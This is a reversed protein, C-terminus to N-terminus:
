RLMNETFYKADMKVRCVNDLIFFFLVEIETQSDLIVRGILVVSDSYLKSFHQLFSHLIILIKFMPGQNNYLYEEMQNEIIGHTLTLLDLFLSVSLM